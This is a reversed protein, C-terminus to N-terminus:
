GERPTGPEAQGGAGDYLVRERGKVWSVSDKAESWRWINGTIFNQADEFLGVLFWDRYSSKALAKLIRECKSASTTLWLVAVRDVGLDQRCLRSELYQEYALVKAKLEAEAPLVSTFELFAAQKEEGRSVQIFGDPQMPLRLLELMRANKWRMELGLRQAELRANVYLSSLSLEHNMMLVPAKASGGSVGAILDIEAASYGTDTSAIYRRGRLGLYYIDPENPFAVRKRLYGLDYLYRLRQKCWSFTTPTFLLQCVQRNTLYRAEFVAQVIAYDRGTPRIGKREEREFRKTM